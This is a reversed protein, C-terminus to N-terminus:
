RVRVRVRVRGGLGLGLGLGLGIWTKGLGTTVWFREEAELTKRLRPMYRTLPLPPAGLLSLTTLALPRACERSARGHQRYTAATPWGTGTVRTSNKKQAESSFYLLYCSVGANLYHPKYTAPVGVM